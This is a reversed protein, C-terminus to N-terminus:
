ALTLHEPKFICIEEMDFVSSSVLQEDTKLSYISLFVVGPFDLFTDIM